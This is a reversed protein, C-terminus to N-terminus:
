GNSCGENLIALIIVFGTPILANEGVFILECNFSQGCWTLNFRRDVGDDFASTQYGGDATAYFDLCALRQVRLIHLRVFGSLYGLLM